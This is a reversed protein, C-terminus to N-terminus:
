LLIRLRKLSWNDKQLLCLLNPACQPWPLPMEPHPILGHWPLQEAFAMCNQLLPKQGDLRAVHGTFLLPILNLHSNTKMWCSSIISSIVLRHVLSIKAWFLAAKFESVFEKLWDSQQYDMLLVQQAITLGITSALCFPFYYYSCLAGWSGTSHLSKPSTSTSPITVEADLAHHCHGFFLDCHNFFTAVIFHYIRGDLIIKDWEYTRSALLFKALEAM